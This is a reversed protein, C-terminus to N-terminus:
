LAVSNTISPLYVINMYGGLFLAGWGVFAFGLLTAGAPRRSPARTRVLFAVAWGSIAGLVAYLTLVMAALTGVAIAGTAARVQALDVAGWFLACAAFWLVTALTSM